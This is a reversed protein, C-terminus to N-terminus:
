ETEVPQSLRLRNCARRKVSFLAGTLWFTMQRSAALELRAQLVTKVSIVSFSSNAFSSCLPISRAALRGLFTHNARALDAIQFHRIRPSKGSRRGTQPCVIVDVRSTKQTNREIWFPCILGITRNQTEKWHCPRCRSADIEVM